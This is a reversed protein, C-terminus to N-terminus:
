VGMSYPNEAICSELCDDLSVSTPHRKAFPINGICGLKCNEEKQKAYEPSFGPYGYSGPGKYGLKSYYPYDRGYGSTYRYPYYAQTYYYGDKQNSFFCVIILVIFIGIILFQINDM